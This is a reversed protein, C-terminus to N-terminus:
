IVILLVYLCDSKELYGAGFVPVRDKFKKTCFTCLVNTFVCMCHM